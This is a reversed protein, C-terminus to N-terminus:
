VNNVRRKNHVIQMVVSYVFMVAAVTALFYLGNVLEVVFMITWIVAFLASSNNLLFEKM